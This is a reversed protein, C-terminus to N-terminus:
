MNIVEDLKMCMWEKKVKIRICEAQTHLDLKNQLYIKLQITYM